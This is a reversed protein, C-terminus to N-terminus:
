MLQGLPDQVQWNYPLMHLPTLHPGQPELQMALLGSTDMRAPLAGHCASGTRTM